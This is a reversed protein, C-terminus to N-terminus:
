ERDLNCLKRVLDALAESSRVRRGRCGAVSCQWLGPVSPRQVASCSRCEMPVAVEVTTGDKVCLWDITFVGQKIDDQIQVCKAKHDTKWSLKQCQRSCYRVYRCGACRLFVEGVHPRAKCHGCVDDVAAEEDVCQQLARKFAAYRVADAPTPWLTVGENMEEETRQLAVVQQPGIQVLGVNPAAPFVRGTEPCWYM